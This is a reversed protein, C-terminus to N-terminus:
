LQANQVNTDIDNFAWGQVHSTFLASVSENFLSFRFSAITDIRTKCITFLSHSLTTGKKVWIIVFSIWGTSYPLNLATLNARNHKTVHFHGHGVPDKSVM